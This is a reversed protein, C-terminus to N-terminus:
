CRYPYTCAAQPRLLEQVTVEYTEKSNGTQWTQRETKKLRSVGETALSEYGLPTKFWKKSGPSMPVEGRYVMAEMKVLKVGLSSSIRPAVQM